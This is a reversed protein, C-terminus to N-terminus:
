AYHGPSCLSSTIMINSSKRVMKSKLENKNTDIDADAEVKAKDKGNNVM